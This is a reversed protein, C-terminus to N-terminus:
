DHNNWVKGPKVQQIWMFKTERARRHKFWNTITTTGSVQSHLAIAAAWSQWALFNYKNEMYRARGPLVCMSCARKYAIQSPKVKSRGKEKTLANRKTGLPSLRCELLVGIPEWSLQPSPMSINLRFPSPVLIGPSSFWIIHWPAPFNEKLWEVAPPPRCTWPGCLLPFWGKLFVGDSSYLLCYVHKWFVFNLFCCATGWCEGEWTCQQIVLVSM